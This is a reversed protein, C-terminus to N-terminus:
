LASAPSFSVDGEYFPWARSDYLDVVSFRLDFPHGTEILSPAFLRLAEAKGPKIEVRPLEDTWGEQLWSYEKGGALGTYTEFTLNHVPIPNVLAVVDGEANRNGIALAFSAGAALGEPFVLRVERFGVGHVPSPVMEVNPLPGDLPLLELDESPPCFRLTRVSLPEILIRHFAGTPLPADGQTYNLQVRTETGSVLTEPSLAWRGPAHLFDLAEDKGEVGSNQKMDWPDPTEEAAYAAGSFLSTTLAFLLAAVVGLFGFGFFFL